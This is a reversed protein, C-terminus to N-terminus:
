IIDRYTVYTWKTNTYGTYALRQCLDRLRVLSSSTQRSGASVAAVNQWDELGQSRSCYSGKCQIWRAVLRHTVPIVKPAQFPAQDISVRLTENNMAVPSEKKPVGPRGWGTKIMVLEAGPSTSTRKCQSWGDVPSGGVGSSHAVSPSASAVSRSAMFGSSCLWDLAPHVSVLSISMSIPLWRAAHWPQFLASTPHNQMIHNPLKDGGIAKASM